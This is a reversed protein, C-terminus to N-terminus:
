QRRQRSRVDTEGLYKVLTIECERKQPDYVYEVQDMIKQVLYLGLGGPKRKELPLGAFTATHETIDFEEVDFDSISVTVTEPEYFLEIRIRNPNNSHYKVLNTFIEEVALQVAFSVDTNVQHKRIFTELFNFVETLAQISRRFYKVM